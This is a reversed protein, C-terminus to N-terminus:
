WLAYARVGYRWKWKSNDCFIGVLVFWACCLLLVKVCGSVCEGWLVWVQCGALLTVVGLCGVGAV